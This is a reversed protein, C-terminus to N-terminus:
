FRFRMFYSFKIRPHLKRDLYQEEITKNDWIIGTAKEEEKKKKIHFSRCKDPPKLLPVVKEVSNKKTKKKKKKRDKKEEKEKNIGMIEFLYDLDINERIAKAAKDYERNKIDSYDMIDKACFRRGEQKMFFAYLFERGKTKYKGPM